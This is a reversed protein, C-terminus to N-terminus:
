RNEFLSKTGYEFVETLFFLFNLGSIEFRHAPMM